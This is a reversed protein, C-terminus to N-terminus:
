KKRFEGPTKGTYKKFLRQFYNRNTYGVAEAVEAVSSGNQSLLDKAREIRLRTIYDLPSVGTVSRFIDRYRSVGLFEMAALNEVTLEYRLHTHIYRISKDLRGVANEKAAKGFVYLLYRLQVAAAYEFDEGQTRFESFLKEYYTFAEECQGLSYVKGPTIGSRLLTREAECGTFHIWFYHTWEDLPSRSGFSYETGPLMCVLDGSGITVPEGGIQGVIDGGLSYILYFDNRRGIRGHAWPIRMVAEGCCNVMLDVDYDAVDSGGPDLKIKYYSQNAVKNKTEV